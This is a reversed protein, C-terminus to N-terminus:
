RKAWAAARFSLCVIGALIGLRGLKHVQGRQKPRRDAVVPASVPEEKHHAEDRRPLMRAPRLKAGRTTAAPAYWSRGCQSPGCSGRDAQLRQEIQEQGCLIRCPCSGTPWLGLRNLCDQHRHRVVNRVRRILGERDLQVTQTLHRGVLSQSPGAGPRPLHSTHRKVGNAPTVRFERFTIDPQPEDFKCVTFWQSIFNALPM